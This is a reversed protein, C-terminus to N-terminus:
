EDIEGDEEDSKVKTFYYALFLVVGGVAIGVPATRLIKNTTTTEEASMTKAAPGELDMVSVYGMDEM